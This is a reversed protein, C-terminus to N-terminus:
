KATAVPGAALKRVDGLDATPGFERRIIADCQRNTHPREDRFKHAIHLSFYGCLQSDRLQSTYPCIYVDRGIFRRILTSNERSGLPDYCYPSEQTQYLLVWHIGPGHSFDTNVILPTLFKLRSRAKDISAWQFGNKIIDNSSILRGNRSWESLAM